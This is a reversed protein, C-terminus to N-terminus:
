SGGMWAWDGPLATASAPTVSDAGADSTKTRQAYGTSTSLTGYEMGTTTNTLNNATTIAYEAASTIINIDVNPSADYTFPTTTSLVSGVTITVTVGDQTSDTAFAMPVAMFFIAIFYIASLKKNM